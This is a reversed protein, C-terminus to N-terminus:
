EGVLPIYRGQRHIVAGTRGLEVHEVAATVEISWGLPRLDVVRAGLWTAGDLAPGWETQTWDGVHFRGGPAPALGAFVQSLHTDGEGLISAALTVGPELREALDSEPDIMAVLHGPEGTVVLVSSVTLGARGAGEGTTLVTVPSPLRGRFRRVADKQGVPDAFPHETHITM